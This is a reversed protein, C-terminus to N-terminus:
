PKLVKGRASIDKGKDKIKENIFVKGLKRVDVIAEQLLVILPRKSSGEMQIAQFTNYEADRFGTSRINDQLEPSYTLTPISEKKTAFMRQKEENTVGTLPEGFALPRVNTTKRRRMLGGKLKRRSDGEMSYREEDKYIGEDVDDDDDRWDKRRDDDDDDDNDDVDYKRRDNDEDDDEEVDDDKSGDWLRNNNDGDKQRQKGRKTPRDNTADDVAGAVKSIINIGLMPARDLPGLVANSVVKGLSSAAQILKRWDGDNYNVANYDVESDLNQRCWRSKRSGQPASMIDGIADSDVYDILRRKIKDIEVLMRREASKAVIVDDETDTEVDQEVNRMESANIPGGAHHGGKLGGDIQKDYSDLSRRLVHRDQEVRATKDLLKYSHVVILLSVLNTLFIVKGM